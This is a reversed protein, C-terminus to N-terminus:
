RMWTSRAVRENVVVFRIPVRHGPSNAHVATRRLAGPEAVQEAAEEGGIDTVVAALFLLIVYSDKWSSSRWNWLLIGEPPAMALAAMWAVAKQDCM